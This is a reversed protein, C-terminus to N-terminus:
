ENPSLLDGLGRVTDEWRRENDRVQVAGAALAARTRDDALREIANRLSDLDPELAPIGSRASGTRRSSVLL